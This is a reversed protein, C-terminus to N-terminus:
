CPPSPQRKGEAVRVPGRRRSTKKPRPRVPKPKQVDDTEKEKEKRFRGATRKFSPNGSDKPKRHRTNLRSSPLKQRSSKHDTSPPVPDGSSNNTPAPAVRKSDNAIPRRRQPRRSSHQSHRNFHGKPRKRPLRSPRRSSIKNKEIKGEEAGQDSPSHCSMDASNENDSSLTLIAGSSDKTEGISCERCPIEDDAQKNKSVTELPSVASGNTEKSPTTSLSPYSAEILLPNSHEEDVLSSAHLVPSSLRMGPPPGAQWASIPPSPAPIFHKDSVDREGEKAVSKNDPTQQTLESQKEPTVPVDAAKPLKHKEISYKPKKRPKKDKRDKTKGLEVDTDVNVLTGDPERRFLVGRTRPKRTRRHEARAAKALMESTPQENQQKKKLVSDNNDNDQSPVVPTVVDGGKTYSSGAENRSSKARTAAVRRLIKQQQEMALEHRREKESEHFSETYVAPQDIPSRESKLSEIETSDSQFSDSRNFDSRISESHSSDSQPADDDRYSVVDNERHSNYSETDVPTVPEANCTSTEKQQLENVKESENNQINIEEVCDAHEETIESKTSQDGNGGPVLSGKRQPSASSDGSAEGSTQNTRLLVVPQVVDNIPAVGAHSDESAGQIQEEEGKTNRESRIRARAEAAERDRISELIIDEENQPPPQNQKSAAAPIQSRKDPHHPDQWFQSASVRQPDSNYGDRRDLPEESYGGFRPADSVINRRSDTAYSDSYRNNPADRFDRDHGGGYDSYYSRKHGYRDDRWHRDENGYHRDRPKYAGGGDYRDRDHYGRRFDHNDRSSGRYDSHGREGGHYDRDRNDRYHSPYQGEGSSGRNHEDLQPFRRQYHSSPGSYRASDADTAYRENGFERPPLRQGGGGYDCSPDFRSGSRNYRENSDYNRTYENQQLSGEGKEQRCENRKMIHSEAVHATPAGRNPPPVPLGTSPPPNSPPHMAWPVNRNSATPPPPLPPRHDPPM